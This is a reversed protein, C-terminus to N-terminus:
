FREKTLFMMSITLSTAAKKSHKDRIVTLKKSRFTNSIVIFTNLKYNLEATGSCKFVRATTGIILDMILCLHM